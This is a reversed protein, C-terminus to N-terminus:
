NRCGNSHIQWCSYPSLDNPNMKKINKQSSGDKTEEDLESSLLVLFELVFSHEAM